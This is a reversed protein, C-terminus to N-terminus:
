KDNKEQGQKLEVAEGNPLLDLRKTLAELGLALNGIQDQLQKQAQILAEETKVGARIIEKCLSVIQERTFDEPLKECMKKAQDYFMKLDGKQDVLGAGEATPFDQSEVEVECRDCTINITEKRM